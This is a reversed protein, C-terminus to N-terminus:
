QGWWDSLRLLILVTLLEGSGLAASLLVTAKNRKRWQIPSGAATFKGACRLAEVVQRVNTRVHAGSSPMRSLMRM